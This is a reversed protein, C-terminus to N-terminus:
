VMKPRSLTFRYMRIASLGPGGLKSLNIASVGIAKTEGAALFTSIAYFNSLRDTM